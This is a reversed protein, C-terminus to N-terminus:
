PKAELEVPSKLIRKRFRDLGLALLMLVIGGITFFVFSNMLTGFTKFYIYLTEAAFLVFGLNVLYRDSFKQGFTILWLSSLFLCIALAIPTALGTVGVISFLPATLGLLIIGAMDMTSYGTKKRWIFSLLIGTGVLIASGGIWVNQLLVPDARIYFVFYSKSEMAQVLFILTILASIAYNSLPYAFSEPFKRHSHCVLVLAVTFVFFAMSALQSDAGGTALSYSM